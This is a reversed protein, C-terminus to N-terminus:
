TVPVGGNALHPRKGPYKSPIPMAPGGWARRARHIRLSLGGMALLCAWQWCATNMFCHKHFAFILFESHPIGAAPPPSKPACPPHSPWTTDRPPRQPPTAIGVLRFARQWAWVLGGRCTQTPHTLGTCRHLSEAVGCKGRGAQVDTQDRGRGAQCHPPYPSYM